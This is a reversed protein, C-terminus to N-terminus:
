AELSLKLGYTASSSIIYYGKKSRLILMTVEGVGVPVKGMKIEKLKRHNKCHSHAHIKNAVLHLEPM